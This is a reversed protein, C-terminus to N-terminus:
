GKKDFIMGVIERMKESIKMAEESPIKRIIKGTSREMVNVFMQEIKDDFGFKINTDLSDMHKNLNEITNKLEEKSPMSVKKVSNSLNVNNDYKINKRTNTSINTSTEINPQTVQKNTASFIDM